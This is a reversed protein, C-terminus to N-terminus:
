ADTASCSPPSSARPRATRAGSVSMSANENYILRVRTRESPAEGSRPMAQLFEGIEPAATWAPEDLVGDVKIRGDFRAAAATPPNDGARVFPVPGSLLFLLATLLLRDTSKM